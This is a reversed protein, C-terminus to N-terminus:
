MSRMSGSADLLFLFDVPNQRLGVTERVRAYAAQAGGARSIQGVDISVGQVVQLAILPMIMHLAGADRAPLYMSGSQSCLSKLQTEQCASGLGIVFCFNNSPANFRQLIQAADKLTQKSGNDGGDTLIVLVWPRSRDATTIHQLVSVVISDWLHTGGSEKDNTMRCCAALGMLAMDESQLSVLPKYQTHFGVVTCRDIRTMTSHLFQAMSQAAVAIRSDSAVGLATIGTTGTVTTTAPTKRAPTTNGCTTSSSSNGM